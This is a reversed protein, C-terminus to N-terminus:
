RVNAAAKRNSNSRVVRARGVEAVECWGRPPATEGGHWESAEALKRLLYFSEQRNGAEYLDTACKGLTRRSYPNLM